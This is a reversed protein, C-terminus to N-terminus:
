IGLATCRFHQSLLKTMRRWNTAIHWSGSNKRSRWRPLVFSGENATAQGAFRWFSSYVATAYYCIVYYIACTILASTRVFLCYYLCVINEVEGKNRYYCVTIFGMM